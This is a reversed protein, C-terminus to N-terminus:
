VLCADTILRRKNTCALANAPQGGVVIYDFEAGAVDEITHAEDLIAVQYDPLLGFGERRLALDSFFLAHNM